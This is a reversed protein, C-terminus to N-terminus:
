ETAAFREHAVVHAARVEGTTACRFQYDAEGQLTPGFQMIREPELAPILERSLGGGEIHFPTMVTPM